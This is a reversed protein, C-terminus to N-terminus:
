EASKLSSKWCTLVANFVHDNDIDDLADDILSLLSIANELKPELCLDEDEFAIRLDLLCNSEGPDKRVGVQNISEAIKKGPIM